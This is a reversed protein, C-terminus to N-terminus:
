IKSNFYEIDVQLQKKLIERWLNGRIEGTGMSVKTQRVNGDDDIKRYYYHNTSKYLEWGDRDCFRKLEKWQPM